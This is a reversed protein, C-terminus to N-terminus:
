PTFKKRISISLSLIIFLGSCFLCVTAFLDGHKTYFTVETRPQIEGTLSAASYLKTENHLRGVPDVYASIGGNTSRVIWRRNEIARFSAYSAHQYAGSTNGWWSDNSIIVLFQAGKKVYQRVYNPYVSEYCIIGSFDTHERNDSPLSFLISDKGIGWMGIGVNWKLPEILFRFTEAYPIREAFPVLVIKKYIPGAYNNPAFITASNFDDFYFSGYRLKTATIPAHLSDYFMRHALGTFIPTRVSDVTAQMDRSFKAYTPLLIQFPIATEPWVILDLNPNERVLRKTEYQFTKFQQEYSDWKGIFGEGWKEWPNFNPQIVGVKLYRGGLEKEYRTIVSAGYIWPLFYILALIVLSAITKSSRLKWKGAGLNVLLVFGIINFSILLLSLGYVSTYEVIQSRYLDYAQSNGLTMWPFSFEGLSHIYEYS